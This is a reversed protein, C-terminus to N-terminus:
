CWSQSTSPSQIAQLELKVLMVQLYYDNYLRDTLTILILVPKTYVLMYWSFMHQSNSIMLGQTDQKMM